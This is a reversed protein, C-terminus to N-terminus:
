PPASTWYAGQTAGCNASWFDANAQDYFCQWAVVPNVCCGLLAYGYLPDPCYGPVKTIYPNPPCSEYPYGVEYTFCKPAKGTVTFDFLCSEVPKPPAGGSSGTSAASTSSTVSAGTTQASGGAGGLSEGGFGGSGVTVSNTSTGAGNSATTSTTSSGGGSSSQGLNNPELQYSPCSCLSLLLWGLRM